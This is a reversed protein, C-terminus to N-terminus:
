LKVRYFAKAANNTVIYSGGSSIPQVDQWIVMNTTRQLTGAPGPWTLYLWTQYTLRMPDPTVTVSAPLSSGSANNAIFTQTSGIPLGGVTIHELTTAEYNIGTTLNLITTEAPEGNDWALTVVGNTKVPAASSQATTLTRPLAPMAVSRPPPDSIESKLNSVPAQCGAVLLLVVAAAAAALQPRRRSHPKCTRATPNIRVGCWCLKVNDKAKSVQQAAFVQEMRSHDGGHRDPHHEILLKKLRPNM